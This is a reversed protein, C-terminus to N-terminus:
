GREAREIEKQRAERVALPTADGITSATSDVPVTVNVPEPVEDEEPVARLDNVLHDLLRHRNVINASMYYKEATQQTHGTHHLHETMVDAAIEENQRLQQMRGERYKRMSNSNFRIDTARDGFKAAFVESIGRAMSRDATGKQTSFILVPVAQFERRYTEKLHYLLPIQDPEVRLAVDYYQGTKHRSTSVSGSRQIEELMEWTLNMIPQNRCNLRAQLLFYNLAKEEKLSLSEEEVNEQLLKLVQEHRAVVINHSPVLKFREDAKRRSDCAASTTYISKVENMAAQIRAADINDRIVLYDVFKKLCALYTLVTQPALRQRKQIMMTVQLLRHPEQFHNTEGYFTALTNKLWPRSRDEGSDGTCAELAQRQHQIYEEAREVDTRRAVRSEKM